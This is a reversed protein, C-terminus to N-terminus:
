IYDFCLRWGGDKKSVFLIPAGFPSTSPRIFGRELLEHLQARLEALQAESLPYIRTAPSRVTFVLLQAGSLLYSYSPEQCYIRTAPTTSGGPELRIKHDGAPSPSLGNLLGTSCMRFNRYCAKWSRNNLQTLSRPLILQM